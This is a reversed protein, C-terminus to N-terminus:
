ERIAWHKGLHPLKMLLIVLETWDLTARLAATEFCGAAVFRAVIAGPVARFSM